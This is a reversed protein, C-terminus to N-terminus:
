CHILHDREEYMVLLLPLPEEDNDNNELIWPTGAYPVNHMDHLIM